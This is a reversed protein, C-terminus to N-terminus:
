LKLVIEASRPVVRQVRYDEIQPSQLMENAQLLLVCLETNLSYNFTVHFGAFPNAVCGPTGWLPGKRNTGM